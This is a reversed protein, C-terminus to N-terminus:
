WTREIALTLLVHEERGSATFDAHRVRDYAASLHCRLAEAVEWDLRLSPEVHTERYPQDLGREEVDLALTAAVRPTVTFCLEGAYDRGGGGVHHGLLSRRYTYGSRYIGHRYWLPSNADVHGLDAVELRLTVRGTPELRPLYVGWLFAHNTIWADAEDEGGMEAYLTVLPLILSLDIAALQNSNDKKGSLNRGSLITFFDEGTVDPRGDGGFLMTRALGLTFYRSPRLNLRLGSLYPAPVVRDHQLRSVFLDFRLPGLSALFGPLTRPQPNTLHLMPLPHANNSLLLSGHRGPGWWLSQYGLSVEVPGAMLAGRLQRSSFSGGRKGSGIGSFELAPTWEGGGWDFTVDFEGEGRLAGGEATRRGGDNVTLPFQRADVLPLAGGPRRDAIAVEDGQLVVGQLSLSRVHWPSRVEFDGNLEPGLVTSLRRLAAEAAVVDDAGHERAEVVRRAAERRTVPRLGGLASPTLGLADLRDLDAYCPSNLPLPPSYPAATAPLAVALMVLGLIVRQILM